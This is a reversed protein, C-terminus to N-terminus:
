GQRTFFKGVTILFQFRYSFKNGCLPLLCKSLGSSLKLQGGPQM